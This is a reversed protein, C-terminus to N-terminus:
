CRCVQLLTLDTSRPLPLLRGRTTPDVVSHRPRRRLLATRLLPALLTAVAVLLALCISVVMVHGSHGHEGPAAPAVTSSTEALANADDEPSAAAHGHPPTMADDAAAPSGHGTLGHMLLVGLFALGAWVLRSRRARENRQARYM